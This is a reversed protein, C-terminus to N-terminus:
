SKTAAAAAGHGKTAARVLAVEERATIMDLLPSMGQSAEPPAGNPTTHELLLAVSVSAGTEAAMHLPSRGDITVAMPDAQRSFLLQVVAGANAECAFHLPLIGEPSRPEVSANRDLLCRAIDEHGQRAAWHLPVLGLHDTMAPSAKAALLAHCAAAKDDYAARLLGECLWSERESPPINNAMQIVQEVDGAALADDAQPDPYGGNKVEPM